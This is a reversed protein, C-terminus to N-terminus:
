LISTKNTLFEPVPTPEPIRIPKIRNLIRVGHEDAVTRIGLIGPDGSRHGTRLDNEFQLREMRQAPHGMRELVNREAVDPHEMLLGDAAAFGGPLEQGNGTRLVTFVVASRGARLVARQKRFHRGSRLFLRKGNQKQYKAPYLLRCEYPIRRFDGAPYGASRRVATERRQHACSRQDTNRRRSRTRFLRENRRGAPSRASRQDVRFRQYRSKEGRRDHKELAAFRRLRDRRYRSAHHVRRGAPDSGPGPVPEHGAFIAPLLTGFGACTGLSISQGLAVGLYRMSLGFTLGGVGWLIGYVIAKAAGGNGLLEFLGMGEPVGLLAGLLPFVLWAFIGQVIWFSEWAWNKVKNIPVYSSSQGFSGIAIILLGLLIEM